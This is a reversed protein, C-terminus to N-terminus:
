EPLDLSFRKALWREALRIWEAADSNIQSKSTASIQTGVSLGHQGKEFIHMEFPIAHDALAHAMRITNQVSVLTDESTAWLFAPPMMETVLRAPSVEELLKEDPEPEGLFATCSANFFHMENSDRNMNKKMYTYDSLMYGMILAAPRLMEKDANLFETVLPKDWYAGYMAANHAGASFGCVAIRKVDVAWEESYKGIVLMAKGIERVPAPHKTQFNPQLPKGIIDRVREEGQIYTSYRLVFAHYGMANFQLAVPEAERDSCNFYGGGPCILVAPRKGQRSMEGKESIIYTTLTVDERDEYLKLTETLM